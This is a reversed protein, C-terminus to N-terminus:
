LEPMHIKSQQSHVSGQKESSGLWINPLFRVQDFVDHMTGVVWKRHKGSNKLPTSAFPSKRSDLLGM